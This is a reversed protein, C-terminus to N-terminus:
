RLLGYGFEGPNKSKGIGDFWHIWRVRGQGDDENVLFTFRISKGATKEALGIRNYPVYVRYRTQSGERVIQVPIKAEGIDKKNPSMACWAEAGSDTLALSFEVMRGAADAIGLQISDARWLGDKHNPQVHKDDTVDFYFLIGRDDHEAAAIVSLDKPGAWQPIAPDHTIEHVDLKTDVTFRAANGPIPKVDNLPLLRDAKVVGYCTFVAVPLELPTQKNEGMELRLRYQRMGLAQGAQAADVPLDLRTSANKTLKVDRNVVVKNMDDVLSVRVAADRGWTNKLEVPMTTRGGPVLALEHPYHVFDVDGNTITGPKTRIYVPSKAVAVYAAGDLIGVPQERGYMDTVALVTAGRLALMVPAGELRPWCVYVNEKTDPNNFAYTVVDSHLKVPEAPLTSGLQRVMENYAICSPKPHNDVTILGFSDDAGFDMDWYDQLTFWLFFETGQARAYVMKRVLTESQNWGGQVTYGAREGSETNAMPKSIDHQKMLGSVTEHEYVYRDPTGHSHFMAVDYYDKARYFLDEFGKKHRPHDLGTQCGAGIKVNPAYKKVGDHFVQLMHIFEDLTGDFFGLEPENWFEVYKVNPFQAVFEGVHETHRAFADWQDPATRWKPKSQTWTPVDMYMASVDVGAAEHARIWKALHETGMLGPQPEVRGGTLGFRDIDIGLQKMWNLHLRNEEEGQWLTADNVGFLMGRTNIRKGVPEFVGVWDIIEAENATVTLGYPGKPLTGLDMQVVAQGYPKITVEQQVEAAKQGFSNQARVQVTVRQEAADANRLRYRVQVPQGPAANLQDYLPRVSVKREKESTGILTINDIFASGEAAAQQRPALFIRRLKVPGQIKAFDRVTKENFEVRYTKWQNGDMPVRSTRFRKGATDIVEFSIDCPFGKPNGQFEIATLEAAVESARVREAFIEKYGPGAVFAYRIEGVYDDACKEAKSSSVCISGSFWATPPVGGMPGTRWTSVDEFDSVVYRGPDAAWVSGASVSLAVAASIWGRKM